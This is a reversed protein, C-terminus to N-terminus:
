VKGLAFDSMVAPASADFGVIDLMGADDPDAISIENAVMGVVILRAPIGMAKRYEQLARHPHISGAWTESDTYIVFVDVPVKRELAWVIPLACDTGRAPLGATFEVAKALSMDRISGIDSFTTDFAKVVCNPEVRATVLAMAAAGERPTFGMGAIKNWEMSGSVDLALLWRKNTPTIAKFALYFAEDLAKCVQQSPEWTLHGKDGHGQAYVKAAQLIQLPHVRGKRLMEINRLRDCVVETFDGLPALLGVATMKGLNRIIATIGMSPLMAAWILQDSKADNPVCEHPLDYEDILRYLKAFSDGKKWLKAREFAWIRALGPDPHPTEGIEPWGHVMWDIVINRRATDTVHSLRLMDRHSWGDRSQYKIAQTVLDEFHRNRYWRAIARKAGNGSLGGLSNMYAAWHFLHTGIRAVEPLVQYANRKTREDGKRCALALAFLAPDNKPARGEKSVELLERVVREGDAALCAEVAAANQLTLKRESAYYSGGESGLILFRRLQTWKDVSFSFGGASNKVQAPDQQEQQTRPGGVVRGYNISM